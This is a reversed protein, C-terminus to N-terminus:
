PPLPTTSSLYTKIVAKIHSEFGKESIKHEKPKEWRAKMISFLAEKLDEDTPLTNAAGYLWGHTVRQLGVSTKKKKQAETAIDLMEPLGGLRPALVPVGAAIAELVVLPANEPWRSPVVLVDFSGLIRPLERPEFRGEFRIRDVILPDPVASLAHLKKLYEPLPFPGFIVLKPLEDRKRVKLEEDENEAEDLLRLVAQRFATLLHRAGKHPVLQGIFGFTLPRSEKSIGPIGPLVARSPEIGNRLVEIKREIGRSSLWQEYWSALYHSPAILEDALSLANVMEKERNTFFWANALQRRMVSDGGSFRELNEPSPASIIRGLPGFLPNAHSFARLAAPIIGQQEICGMCKFKDPGSCLKGWPTRLVGKYCAYWYDHLTMVIRTQPFAEKLLRVIRASLWYLHHIHVIDPAFDKVAELVRQEAEANFATWYLSNRNPNTIKYVQMTRLREPVSKKGSWGMLSYRDKILRCRAGRPLIIPYLAAVDHGKALQGASLQLVYHEVGGLGQPPFSHLIHLIRM